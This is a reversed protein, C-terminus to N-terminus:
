IQSSGSSGGFANFFTRAAGHLGRSVCPRSGSARALGIGMRDRWFYQFSRRRTEQYNCFTEQYRAFRKRNEHVNPCRWLPGLGKNCRTIRHTARSEASGPRSERRYKKRHQSAHLIGLIRRVSRDHVFRQGCLVPSTLTEKLDASIASNPAVFKEQEPRTRRLRLRGFARMRVPIRPIEANFHPKASARFNLPVAPHTRVASRRIWM